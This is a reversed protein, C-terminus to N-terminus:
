EYPNKEIKGSVHSIITIRKKEVDIDSGDTRRIDIHKSRKSELLAFFSCVSHGIVVDNKKIGSKEFVGGSTVSSIVLKEEGDIYPTGYKFGYKEEIGQFDYGCCGSLILLLYIVISRM